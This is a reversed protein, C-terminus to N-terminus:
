SVGGTQAAAIAAGTVALDDTMPLAEVTYNQLPSMKVMQQLYHQLLKLDLFKVNFGTYYFRGAGEMHISNATAAALSRHWLRVFKACREDGTKSAAFVEEPEMDLFRLRMARHGMIGELHGRGGCGCYMEGADLTVTCHGGEWIGEKYPYRGFGIGHGLTWVRIFKDLKGVKAAIGTAVADADNLVVVHGAISQKELEQRMREVMRAGKLQILNPSDEVVGDRVIGPLALGVADVPGCEGSARLVQACVLEVLQDLPTDLLSDTEDPNQPHHSISSCPSQGEIVGTAIRGTLFVGVSKAM